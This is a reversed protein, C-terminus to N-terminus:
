VNTTCVSVKIVDSSNSFAKFNVDSSNSFAKFNIFFRLIGPSLLMFELNYLHAGSLNLSLNSFNKFLM